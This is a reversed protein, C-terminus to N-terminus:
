DGQVPLTDPACDIVTSNGAWRGHADVVRATVTHRGPRVARRALEYTADPEAWADVLDGDVYLYLRVPTKGGSVRLYIAALGTAPDDPLGTDITVRLTVPRIRGTERPTVNREPDLATVTGM